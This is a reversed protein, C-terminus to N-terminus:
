VPLKGLNEFNGLMTARYMSIDAISERVEIVRITYFNWFNSWLVFDDTGRLGSTSKSKRPWKFCPLETLIDVTSEKVKFVYTPHFNHFDM